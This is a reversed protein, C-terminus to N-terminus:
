KSLTNSWKRSWWSTISTIAALSDDFRWKAFCFFCIIHSCLVLSTMLCTHLTCVREMRRNTKAASVEWFGGDEEIAKLCLASKQYSGSSFTHSNACGQNDGIYLNQMKTLKIFCVSFPNQPMRFIFKICICLYYKDLLWYWELLPFSLFSCNWSFKHCM